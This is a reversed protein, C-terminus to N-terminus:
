VAYQIALSATLMKVRKCDSWTLVRLFPVDLLIRIFATHLRQYHNKDVQKIAMLPTCDELIIIQLKTNDQNSLFEDQLSYREM